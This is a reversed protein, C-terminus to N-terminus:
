HFVDLGLIHLNRLVFCIQFFPLFLQALFFFLLTLYLLIIPFTLFTISDILHVLVVNVRCAALLALMLILPDLVHDFQGIIVLRCLLCFYLHIEIFPIFIAFIFVLVLSLLLLFLWLLMICIILSRRILKLLLACILIYGSLSRATIRLSIIILHRPFLLITSAGHGSLLTRSGLATIKSTGPIIVRRLILLVVFFTLKELAPYTIPIRHM